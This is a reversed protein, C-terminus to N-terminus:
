VTLESAGSLDNSYRALAPQVEVDIFRQVQEAALGIFSSSDLLREMDHHIPEFFSDQQIRQVLDNDMGMQKVQAAAAMSHVRIQEHVEQRDRGQQVMVMIINETAMFPLEAQIHREIVKPYVVMGSAVNHMISIIADAALFSQGLSLRRNASDDLSREMWQVSHTQLANSAQNMLFRSLACARESRMPNRKYAMASSGVQSKGFPEEVEKLNALLRLDTAWKHISSGLGALAQLVDVDVKRSYTQGCVILRNPVGMLESVRQDLREVKQADGDFLALFSAQTGTTGKVGRFRLDTLCRQLNRLDMLLDSTWLSARKGVTTLQAPQYHTFGLTPLARHDMSFDSLVKILSALKPLLLELGQKIQLIDTNDGVFCSTAGWHIIGKASPCLDGFHHIHAMVDHRFQREYESVKAYDITHVQEQMEAIQEDTIPLGLEQQATALAIWCRRWTIFKNDNSFVFSMEKSAYRHVLPNSYQDSSM